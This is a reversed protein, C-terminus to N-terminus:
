STQHAGRPVAVPGGVVLAAVCGVDPCSPPLRLHVQYLAITDWPITRNLAILHGLVPVQRLLSWPPPPPALAFPLFADAADVTPDALSPQRVVCLTDHHCTWAYHPVARARLWVTRGIWALPARELSQRLIHPTVIAGRTPGVPGVAPGLGAIAACLALVGLVLIVWTRDWSRLLWDATM